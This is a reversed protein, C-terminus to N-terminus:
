HQYYSSKETEYELTKVANCVSFDKKMCNQMLKSFTRKDHRYVGLADWLTYLLDQQIHPDYTYGNGDLTIKNFYSIGCDFYRQTPIVPICGYASSIFSPNGYPSYLGGFVSIDSASFINKLTLLDFNTECVSKKSFSSHEIKCSRPISNESYLIIVQIDCRMMDKTIRAIIDRSKYPYVTILPINEDRALGYFKQLMLKNKLKDRINISNYNKHIELDMESDFL